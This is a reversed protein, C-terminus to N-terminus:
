FTIVIACHVSRGNSKKKAYRNHVMARTFSDSEYANKDTM